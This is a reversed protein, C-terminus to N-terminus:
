ESMRGIVNSMSVCLSLLHCHAIELWFHCNSALSHPEEIAVDTDTETNRGSASPLM